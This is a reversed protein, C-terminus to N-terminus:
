CMIAVQRLSRSFFVPSRVQVFIKFNNSFLNGVQCGTVLLGFAQAEGGHCGDDAEGGQAAATTAATATAAATARPPGGHAAAALQAAPRGAGRPGGALAPRGGLQAAHWAPGGALAAPRRARRADASRAARRPNRRSRRSSASFLCCLNTM